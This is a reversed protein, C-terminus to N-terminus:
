GASDSAKLMEKSMDDFMRHDPAEDTVGGTVHNYSGWPYSITETGGHFTISGVIVNESFIKHIM